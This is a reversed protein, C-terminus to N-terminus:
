HWSADQASISKVSKINSTNRIKLFCYIFILLFSLEWTYFGIGLYDVTTGPGPGETPIITFTFSQLAVIFAIGSLVLGTKYMKFAAFILALPGFINALWAFMFGLVGLWGIMLLVYGPDTETSSIVAPLFMAGIFFAASLWLLWKQNKMPINYSQNLSSYPRTEHAFGSSLKAPPSPNSGLNLAEFAGTRGNSSGGFNRRRM